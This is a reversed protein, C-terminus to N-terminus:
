HMVVRPTCLVPTVMTVEVMSPAKRSLESVRRSNRLMMPLGALRSSRYIVLGRQVEDLVSIANSVVLRSELRASISKACSGAPFLRRASGGCRHRSRRLLGIQEGGEAGVAIAAIHQRAMGIHHRHVALVPRGIGELGFHAVALQVAAAGAVHFAKDAHRQRQRRVDGLGLQRPRDMERQGIVLFHAADADLAQQVIQLRLLMLGASAIM